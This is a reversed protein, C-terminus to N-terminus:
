KSLSYTFYVLNLDNLNKSLGQIYIKMVSCNGNHWSRRRTSSKRYCEILCVVNPLVERSSHDTIHVKCCVASVLSVCGHGRRTEFGCNWCPAATSSLCFARGTRNAHNITSLLALVFVLIFRM